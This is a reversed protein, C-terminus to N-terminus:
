SSELQFLRALAKSAAPKLEGVIPGRIEAHGPNDADDVAIVNLALHTGDASTM